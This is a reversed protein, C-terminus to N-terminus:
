FRNIEHVKVNETETSDNFKISVIWNAWPFFAGLAFIGLLPGSAAGTFSLSAQLVTGGLNMAMFSM